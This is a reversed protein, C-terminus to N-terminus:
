SSSIENCKKWYNQFVYTCLSTILYFATHRKEAKICIVRIHQHMMLGSRMMKERGCMSIYLNKVREGRSTVNSIQQYGKCITQVCILGSLIDPRIQIWVTQCESPIGSLHKQFFNISFFFFGCIVFFCTFNGLMCLTLPFLYVKLPSLKTLITKSGELFPDSM